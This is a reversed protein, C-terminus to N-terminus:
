NSRKAGSGVGDLSKLTKVEVYRSTHPEVTRNSAAQGETRGGGEGLGWEDDSELAVHKTDDRPVLSCAPKIMQARTLSGGPTPTPTPSVPSPAPPPAKM